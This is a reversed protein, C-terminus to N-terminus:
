NRADEELLQLHQQYNNQMLNEYQIIEEEQTWTLQSILEHWMKEEEVQDPQIFEELTNEQQTLTPETEMVTEPILEELLYQTYRTRSVEDGNLVYDMPERREMVGLFTYLADFASEQGKEGFVQKIYDEMTGSLIVQGNEAYSSEPKGQSAMSYLDISVISSTESWNSSITEQTLSPSLTILNSSTAESNVFEM